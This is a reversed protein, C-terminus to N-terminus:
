LSPYGTAVVQGIIGEGVVLPQRYIYSWALGLSAMDRHHIAAVRLENTGPGKLIVAAWDGLVEAVREAIAQTVWVPDINSSFLAGADALIQAREAQRQTEEELRRRETIDRFTVIVGSIRGEEYLPMTSMSIAITQNHRDIIMTMDQVSRGTALSQAAPLEKADIPKGQGNRLHYVAGHDFIPVGIKSTGLLKQGSPNIFVTRGEGDVLMVGDAMGGIIAETRRIQRAISATLWQEIRRAAIAAIAVLVLSAAIMSLILWQRTAAMAQLGAAQQRSHYDAIMGAYDPASRRVKATELMFELANNTNGERALTIQRETFGRVETFHRRFAGITQADHPDTALQSATAAVKEFDRVADAHQEEFLTQRTLLYGRAASVISLTDADMERVADVLPKASQIIQNEQRKELHLIVLNLGVAIAVLVVLAAFAGWVIKRISDVM